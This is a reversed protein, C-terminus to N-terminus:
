LSHSTRNISAVKAINISKFKHGDYERLINILFEDVDDPLILVDYEHNTFDIIVNKLNQCRYFPYNQITNLRKMELQMM